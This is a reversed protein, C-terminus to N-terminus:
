RGNLPDRIFYRTTLQAGLPANAFGGFKKPDIFSGQQTTLWPLRDKVGFTVEDGTTEVSVRRVGATDPDVREVSTPDTLDRFRVMVPWEARPLDAEAGGFWGGLRRVQKFYGDFGGTREGGALAATVFDGLSGKADPLELLVFLPGSPLDVVVAEGFTAGMGKGTESLVFDGYRASEEHVSSGSVVGGPTDVEVTMRYRYSAEGGGCATLTLSTALIAILRVVRHLPRLSSSTM